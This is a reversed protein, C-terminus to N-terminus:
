YGGRIPTSSFQTNVIIVKIYYTDKLKGIGTYAHYYNQRWTAYPTVTKEKFDFITPSEIKQPPGIKDIFHRTLNKVAPRVHTNLSKTNYLGSEFEYKYLKNEKNFFFSLQYKKREILYDKVYLFNGDGHVPLTQSRGYLDLFAKRDIGFPISDFDFPSYQTAGIEQILHVSDVTSDGQSFISKKLRKEEKEIYRQRQKHWELVECPTAQDVVGTSKIFEKLILKYEPTLAKEHIDNRWLIIERLSITSSTDGTCYRYETRYQKEKESYFSHKKHTLHISDSGVVTTLSVYVILLIRLLPSYNLFLNSTPIPFNYSNDCSLTITSSKKVLLNKM